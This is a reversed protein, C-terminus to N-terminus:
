EFMQVGADLAKGKLHQTIICVQHGENFISAPGDTVTSFIWCAALM